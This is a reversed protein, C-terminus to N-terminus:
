QEKCYVGGVQSDNIDEIPLLVILRHVSRKICVDRQGVYNNGPKQPKHRLTVDRVKGDRSAEIAVVQVLRWHGRISNADQIIVIDGECVNRKDVHWKQRILLTPFYDRQWKRWFGNTVREIFELRNKIGNETMYKDVPAKISTRGLLLDNPCLYSGLEIDVGPKTGIPRENLLNAVEFLVTQLEGFTLKSEGIAIILSRKVSKILAESCGNQWPADASKNFIWTTGNSASSDAIKELDICPGSDKLEKSASMLQTGQDSYINKPYGRLTTFRRFVTLFGKTDYSESLDVYSARTVICTFIIGYAKKFTRRKVTDRISLPGFLDCSSHFFPPAPKLREPIVQGMRQHITKAELRKCTVCKNKIAKILKRAGVVWFKHQLKSLTTEIGGHDVCHLNQIYLKMLKSDNPMLIFKNQNWNERLWTAIREGVLIVGNEMSPGLRKYKMEWDAGLSIQEKKILYLEAEQILAPTPKYSIAILSKQNRSAIIRAMVRLLKNYRSFRSIEVQCGEGKDSYSVMCTIEIGIRDPLDSEITQSIPWREIPEKLFKPGKQWVSNAHLSKPNCYRTTMDAPNNESKTWYWENPSSRTQVEAIRNAVFTGFGYSEKQIQARVISSDTIHIVSSFKWDCHKEVTSRLRSSLVAGCLELRPMTLQKTPAIRNKAILLNAEFQGDSLAWRVYACAGYASTSADSFIILMPDAVCNRPKVCRGFALAELEFMEHFFSEWKERLSVSIPDDWDYAEGNIKNSVIERMLIKAGLTFPVILGLPDYISNVQSPILRKTLPVPLKDSLENKGLDPEERVNKYKKSFNLRVKFSFEDKLPNWSLGLVREEGSTLLNLVDNASENGSMIWHKIKFGGEALVSNTDQMLREAQCKDDLSHTIDDVYTNRDIISKVEPFEREKLQATKRLALMAIIGSPRDGFSLATLVYHEPNKSIEADRWVFRHTHQELAMMLVTNYMKSIDGIIGIWGQRFRILIGILENLIDPGKAWYDNLKHGKYNGSSNFVIRVPTSLPEPKLVEHHNIYHIPGRYNSIDSPSLKRAVKRDVMDTIQNNYLKTYELGLKKLRKETSKPVM